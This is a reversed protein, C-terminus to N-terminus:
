LYCMVRTMTDAVEENVDHKMGNVKQRLNYSEKKGRRVTKHAMDGQGAQPGYM